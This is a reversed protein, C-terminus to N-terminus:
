LHAFTRQAFPLATVEPEQPMNQERIRPQSEEGVYKLSLTPGSKQPVHKAPRESIQQLMLRFDYAHNETAVAWNCKDSLLDIM